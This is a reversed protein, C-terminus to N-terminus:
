ASPTTTPRVAGPYGAFFYFRRTVCHEARLRRRRGAGAPAPAAPSLGKFLGLVRLDFLGVAGLLLCLGLYHLTELTPWLSFNPWCRTRCGTTRVWAEWARDARGDSTPRLDVLPAAHPHLGLAPRRHDRGDLMRAVPRRAAEFGADEAGAPPSGAGSCPCCPPPLRILALKTFFVPNDTGQDSLRRAAPPRSGLNLVLGAVILPFLGALRAHRRRAVGLVRLDIMAAPGAAFAMGLTHLVLLGPLAYSSGRLWQSLAGHEILRFLPDM